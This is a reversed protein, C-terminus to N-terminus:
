IGYQSYLLTNDTINIDEGDFINIYNGLLLLHFINIIEILALM